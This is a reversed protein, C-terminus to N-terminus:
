KYSMAIVEAHGIPQMDAYEIMSLGLQPVLHLGDGFCTHLYYTFSPTNIYLQTPLLM